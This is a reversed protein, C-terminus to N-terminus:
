VAESRLAMTGLELLYDLTEGVTLDLESQLKRFRTAQQWKHNQTLENAFSMTPALPTPLVGKKGRRWNLMIGERIYGTDKIATIMWSISAKDSEVIRVLKAQSTEYGNLNALAGAVTDVLALRGKSLSLMRPVARTENDPPLHPAIHELRFTELDAPRDLLTTVATVTAAERARQTIDEASFANQNEAGFERYPREAEAMIQSLEYDTSLQETM